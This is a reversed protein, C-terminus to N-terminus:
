SLNCLRYRANGVKLRPETDGLRRQPLQLLDNFKYNSVGLKYSLECLKSSLDHLKSNLDHLKYTM